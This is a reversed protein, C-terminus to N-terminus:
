KKKLSKKARIKLYDSPSTKTKKPKPASATGEPKLATASAAM